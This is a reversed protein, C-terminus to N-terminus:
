IGVHLRDPGQQAAPETVTAAGTAHEISAEAGDTTNADGGMELKLLQLDAGGPGFLYDLIQTRQRAPYDILLRSNGGGGSIAGIGDFVPGAKHGDIAISTVSAPRAAAHAATIDPLSLLAIACSAATLATALVPRVLSKALCNLM